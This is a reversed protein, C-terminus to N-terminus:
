IKPFLFYGVIYIGIWLKFWHDITFQNIRKLLRWKEPPMPPDPKDEYIYKLGPEPEYPGEEKKAKELNPNPRHPTYLHRRCCLQQQINSQLKILLELQPRITMSSVTHFNASNQQSSAAAAAGRHVHMQRRSIAWWSYLIRRSQQQHHLHCQWNGIGLM